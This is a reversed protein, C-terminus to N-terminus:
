LSNGDLYVLRDDAEDGAGAFRARFGALPDADDLAEAAARSTDMPGHRRCRGPGADGTTLGSCSGGCRLLGPWPGGGDAWTPLLVERGSPLNDAHGDGLGQEDVDARREGHDEHQRQQREHGAALLPGAVAGALRPLVRGDPVLRVRLVALRVVPVAVGGEAGAARGRQGGARRGCGRDTARAAAGASRPSHWARGSWGRSGRARLGAIVRTSCASDWSVAVVSVPGVAWSSLRSSSIKLQCSSALSSSASVM